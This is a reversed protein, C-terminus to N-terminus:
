AKMSRTARSPWASPNPRAQLRQQHDSRPARAPGNEYIVTKSGDAYPVLVDDVFQVYKGPADGEESLNWSVITRGKASSLDIKRTLWKGKAGSLDGDGHVRMGHDDKLGLFRRLDNGGDEFDADIGGKPEPNRPDLLIRYTLIDGPKITLHTAAFRVYSYWNANGKALNTTIFALCQDGSAPASVPAPAAHAPQAAGPSGARLPSGLAASFAVRHLPMSCPM